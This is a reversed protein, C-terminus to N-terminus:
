VKKEELIGTGGRRGGKGEVVSKRDEAPASGGQMQMDGHDMHGAGHNMGMSGHEMGPMNMSGHDMGSGQMSGHDMGPTHGVPKDAQHSEAAHDAHAHEQAFVLMPAGGSLALAAAILTKTLFPKQNTINM